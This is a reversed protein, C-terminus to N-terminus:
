GFVEMVAIGGRAEKPRIYGQDGEKLDLTDGVALVLGARTPTTDGFAVEIPRLQCILKTPGTPVPLPKWASTDAVTDPIDPM